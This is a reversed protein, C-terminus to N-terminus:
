GTFKLNFAHCWNDLTAWSIGYNADHDDKMAELVAMGEEDTCEYGLYKIDDVSWRICISNEM